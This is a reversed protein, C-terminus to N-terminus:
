NLRYGFKLIKSVYIGILNLIFNIDVRNFNQWVSVITRGISLSHDYKRDFFKYLIEGPIANWLKEIKEKKLKENPIDINLIKLKNILETNERSNKVQSLDRMQIAKVDDKSLSISNLTFQEFCEVVTPVLPKILE